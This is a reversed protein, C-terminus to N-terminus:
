TNLKNISSSPIAFYKQMARLLKPDDLPVDDSHTLIHTSDPDRILEYPFLIVVEKANKNEIQHESSSYVSNSLGRRLARCLDEGLVHGLHAVNVPFPNCEILYPVGTNHDVMFDTCGFGSFGTKRVVAESARRIDENETPCYRCHPSSPGNYPLERRVTNGGLIEGELAVFSHLYPDGDIFEQISVSGPKDINRMFPTLNYMKWLSRLYSGEKGDRNLEEFATIVDERDECIWVGAGGSNLDQKVLVPFDYEEQILSLAHEASRVERDRPTHVENLRQTIDLLARKSDLVRGAEPHGLSYRLLDAVKPFAMGVFPSKATGRLYYLSWRDGPIVLDPKWERLAKVIALFLPRPSKPCVYKEEVFCTNWLLSDKTCMAAVSWGSELLSKPLRAATIPYPQRSFVFARPKETQPSVKM